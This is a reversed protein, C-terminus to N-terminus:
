GLARRHRRWFRQIRLAAAGVRALEARSSGVLMRRHAEHGFALHDAESPAATSPISSQGRRLKRSHKRGKLHDEYQEPCNLLVRCVACYVSAPMAHGDVEVTTSLTERADATSMADPSVLGSGLDVCFGNFFTAEVAYPTDSSKCIVHM